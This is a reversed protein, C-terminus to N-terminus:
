LLEPQPETNSSSLRMNMPDYEAPEPEAGIASNLFLASIRGPHACAFLSSIFGGYSHGSLFFKEPM